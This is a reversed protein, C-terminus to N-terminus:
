QVEEGTIVRPTIMAHGIAILAAAQSASMNNEEFYEEATLLWSAADSRM